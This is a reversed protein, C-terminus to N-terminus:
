LDVNIIIIIIIYGVNPVEKDLVVDKPMNQM